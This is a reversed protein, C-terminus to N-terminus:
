ALAQAQSAGGSNSLGRARVEVTKQVKTSTPVQGEQDILKVRPGGGTEQVQTIRPSQGKHYIRVEGTRERNQELEHELVQLVHVEDELNVAKLGEFRGQLEVLLEAHRRRQADRTAGDEFLCPEVVFLYKLRAIVEHYARCM